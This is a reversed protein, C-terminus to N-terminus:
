IQYRILKLAMLTLNPSTPANAVLFRLRTLVAFKGRIIM